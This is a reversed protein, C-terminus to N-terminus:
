GCSGWPYGTWFAEDYPVGGIVAYIKKKGAFANQVERVINPLIGGHSCSNFIM